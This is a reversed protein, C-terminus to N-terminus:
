AEENGYDYVVWPSCFAVGEGVWGAAIMTRYTESNTVFRHNSDREAYRDNFLRWVPDTGAPCAGAMPLLAQFAIGEYEWSTEMEQLSECEDADATYFHSNVERSYFRCVPMAAGPAPGDKPWVHFGFDVLEWDDVLVSTEVESPSATVFYHKIGHHFFNYARQTPPAERVTVVLNSESFHPFFARAENEPTYDLMVTHVNYTGPPLGQVEVVKDGPPAMFGPTHRHGILIVQNDVDVLTSHDEVLGFGSIRPEITFPEYAEVEQSIVPIAVCDLSLGIGALWILKKALHEKM